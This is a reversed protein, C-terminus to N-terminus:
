CFHGAPRDNVAILQDVGISLGADTELIKRGSVDELKLIHARIISVGGDVSRFKLTAERKLDTLEELYAEIEKM